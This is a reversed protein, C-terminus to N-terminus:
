EVGINSRLGTMKWRQKLGDRRCEERAEDAMRGSWERDGAVMVMEVADKWKERAEDVM